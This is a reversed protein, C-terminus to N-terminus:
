PSRYLPSSIAWMLAARVAIRFARLTRDEAQPTSVASDSCAEARGPTVAPRPGGQVPDGAILRVAGQALGQKRHGQWRPNNAIPSRGFARLGASPSGEPVRQRAHAACYAIYRPSSSLFPAVILMPIQRRPAPM